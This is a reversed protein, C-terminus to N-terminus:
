SFNRACAIARDPFDTIIGDVGYECARRMDAEDNVTWALITKKRERLARVYGRDLTEFSAAILDLGYQELLRVPDELRTNAVIGCRLEPSKRKLEVVASYIFSTCVIKRPDAASIKDLLTDAIGESKIEIDLIVRDRVVSLVTELLPIETDMARGRAIVQEATLDAVRTGDAFCTDHFVVINKDRTRQVDLEIGDAGLSIALDFAALTNEKRDASAGRHAFTLIKEM